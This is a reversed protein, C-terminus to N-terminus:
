AAKRRQIHLSASQKKQQTKGEDLQNLLNKAFRILERRKSEHAKLKYGIAEQEDMAQLLHQYTYLAKPFQEHISTHNFRKEFALDALISKFKPWFSRLEAVNKKSHLKHIFKTLETTYDNM